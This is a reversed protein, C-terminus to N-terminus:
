LFWALPELTVEYMGDALQRICRIRYGAPPRYGRTTPLCIVKM